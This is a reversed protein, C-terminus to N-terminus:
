ITIIEVVKAVSSKQRNQFYEVGLTTHKLQSIPYGEIFHKLANLIACALRWRNQAGKHNGSQILRRLAYAQSTAGTKYLGEGRTILQYFQQCKASEAKMAFACAGVVMASRLGIENSRNEITFALEQDYLNMIAIASPVTLKTYIGNNACACITQIAAATLNGNSCGHRLVLQDGVTRLKGRDVTDMVFVKLGNELAVNQLGTTILIKIPVNALRIAELRHQGDVLNGNNDFAIGQHNVVWHGKRMDLAYQEVVSMRLPRNTKNKKLFEIAKDPTIVKVEQKV